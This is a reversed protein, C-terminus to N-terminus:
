DDLIAKLFAMRYETAATWFKPDTTKKLEEMEESSALFNLVGLPLYVVLNNVEGRKGYRGVLDLFNQVLKKVSNGKFFEVNGNELRQRPCFDDVTTVVGYARCVFPRYEYITCGNDYFACYRDTKGDEEWNEDTFAFKLKEILASHWALATEKGKDELLLYYERQLSFAIYAAELMTVRLGVKCCNGSGICRTSLENHEAQIVRLKNYIMDLENFDLLDKITISGM